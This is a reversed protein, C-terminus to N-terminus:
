IGLREKVKKLNRRSVYDTYGNKLVIKITGSVSVDFKSIKSISALCSQNIKIFSNGYKEEIQYLRQKILYKEDRTLAFIKNGQITFCFIEDANLKVCEKNKYGIIQCRHELVIQEIHMVLGNKEHAYIVVEEEHLKDIIVTLKM